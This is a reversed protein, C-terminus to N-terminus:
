SINGGQLTVSFLQFYSYLRYLDKWYPPPTRVVHGTYGRKPPQSMDVCKYKQTEGFRDLHVSSGGTWRIKYLDRIFRETCIKCIHSLNRYGTHLRYYNYFNLSKTKRDIKFLSITPNRIYNHVDRYLCIQDRRNVNKKGGSKNTFKVHGSAISYAKM